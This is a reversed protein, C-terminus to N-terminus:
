ETGAETEANKRKQARSGASIETTQRTITGQRVHNYQVSLQNLLEKANRDAANMALMRANLESGYSDTLIGYVIGCLYSPVTQELVAEVSPLFEFSGEDEADDPLFGARSFPLIRETRVRVGAGGKLDSYVAYLETLDGSRYRELLEEGIQRARFLTPKQASYVFGTEFPIKRAAYYQRGCEGIVFRTGDGTEAILTEAQKLVNQTYAGALGKDATVILYGRVPHAVKKEDPPDFYPSEIRSRIRFVRRIEEELATFYPRTQDWAEKAHRYENSAILYMAHTIKETDRISEIHEKLEKAGSM